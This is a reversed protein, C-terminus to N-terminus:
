KKKRLTFSRKKRGKKSKSGGVSDHIDSVRRFSDYMSNYWTPDTPPETPAKDMANTKSTLDDQGSEEDSEPIEGSFHRISEIMSELWKKDEVSTRGLLDNILESEKESREPNHLLNVVTDLHNWVYGFSDWSSKALKKVKDRLEKILGQKEKNGDDSIKASIDDKTGDNVSKEANSLINEAAEVNDAVSVKDSAVSERAARETTAKKFL